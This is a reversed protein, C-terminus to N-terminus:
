QIWIAAGMGLLKVADNKRMSLMAGANYRKGNLEIPSRVGIVVSDGDISELLAYSPVNEREALLKQARKKGCKSCPM